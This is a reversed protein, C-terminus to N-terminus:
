KAAVMNSPAMMMVVGPTPVVPEGAAARLDIENAMRILVNSACCCQVPCSSAPMGLKKEVGGVLSFLPCFAAFSFILGTYCVYSCCPGCPGSHAAQENAPLKKVIDGFLCCPFYGAYCWRAVGGPAACCDLLGTKWERTAM